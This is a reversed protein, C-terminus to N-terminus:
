SNKNRDHDLKIYDSTFNDRVGSTIIKLSNNFGCNFLLDLISMFPIFVGHLQKYNPHQYNQYFLQIKNDFFFGGQKDKEIYLASGKPSIYVNCEISKCISILREQKTGFVDKIKSGTLFNTKIGIEKSIKKIININFESLIPIEKKILDEIFPYVKNFYESKKYVFYITKLHKEKWATKTEIETENILTNLRGKIAHTPITIYLLGNSTKIRNRTHWSHKEIKVNDLFIFYDVSKILSFYGLWPFYTPQMIACKM